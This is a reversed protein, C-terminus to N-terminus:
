DTGRNNENDVHPVPFTICQNPTMSLNFVGDCRMADCRSVRERM